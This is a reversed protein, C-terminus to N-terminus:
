GALRLGAWNVANLGLSTVLWWVFDETPSVLWCALVFAAWQGTCLGCDVGTGVIQLFTEQGEVPAGDEGVPGRQYFWDVLPLKVAALPYRDEGWYYGVAIFLAAGTVAFQFPDVM